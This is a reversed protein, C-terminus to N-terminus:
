SLSVSVFAAPSLGATKQKDPRLLHSWSTNVGPAGM